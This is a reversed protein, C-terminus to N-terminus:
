GSTLNVIREQKARIQTKLETLREQRSLKALHKELTAIDDECQESVDSDNQSDGGLTASPHDQKNTDGM